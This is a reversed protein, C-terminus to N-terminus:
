RARELVLAVHSVTKGAEGGDSLTVRVSRRDHGVTLHEVHAELPGTRLRGLFRIDLDAATWRGDGVAHEAAIEAFLSQAGGQVTAQIGNAYRDAPDLVLVDGNGGADVRPALFDDFSPEDMPPIARPGAPVPDGVRNNMFTTLAVAFPEDPTADSALRTEAVILRQGVRLPRCVLRIRGATPPPALRQVRLDITPGVPGVPAHGAVLDVMTALLGTRITTTDPAFLQSRIPAIGVVLGDGMAIEIALQGIYSGPRLAAREDSAAIPVDM